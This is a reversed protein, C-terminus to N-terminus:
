RESEISINFSECKLETEVIQQIPTRLNTTSTRLQITRAEIEIHHKTGRMGHRILQQYMDM